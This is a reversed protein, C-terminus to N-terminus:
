PRLDLKCTVKLREIYSNTLGLDFLYANLRSTTLQGEKPILDRHFIHFYFHEIMFSDNIVDAM